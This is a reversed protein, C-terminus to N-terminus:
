PNGHVHPSHWELVAGGLNILLSEPLPASGMDVMSAAMASTPLNDVFSPEMWEVSSGILSAASM